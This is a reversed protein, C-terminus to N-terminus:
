LLSKRLAFRLIIVLVIIACLVAFIWKLSARLGLSKDSKDTLNMDSVVVSDQRELYVM